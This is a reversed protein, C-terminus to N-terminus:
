RFVTVDVAVNRDVDQTVARRVLKEARWVEVSQPYWAGGVPSGWGLYRLDLKVPRDDSGKQFTVVRVPLYSDKEIWVQPKDTEWPKSGILYAVRGDFRAYSVVETNVGLGKFAAILRDAGIEADAPPQFVMMDALLDVGAKGTKETPAKAPDAQPTRTITKGDARVEVVVGGDQETERRVLGVGSPSSALLVREAFDGRKKGDADYVSVNTEVKLSKTAREIAREMARDMMWKTSPRFALAPTSVAVAAAATSSLFLRRDM